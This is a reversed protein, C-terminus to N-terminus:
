REDRDPYDDFCIAPDPSPPAEDRWRYIDAILAETDFDKWSGLLSLIRDRHIRSKPIGTAEAFDDPHMLVGIIDGEEDQILRPTHDDHLEDLQARFEDDGPVRIWRLNSTM